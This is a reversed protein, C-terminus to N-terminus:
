NSKDSWIGFVDLCRGRRGKSRTVSNRMTDDLKHVGFCVRETVGGRELRNPVVLCSM